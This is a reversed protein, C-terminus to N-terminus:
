APVEPGRDITVTVRWRADLERPFGDTLIDLDLAGAIRRGRIMALAAATEAEHITPYTFVATVENGEYGEMYAIAYRHKCDEICVEPLTTADTWRVIADRRATSM